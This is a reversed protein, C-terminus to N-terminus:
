LCNGILCLVISVRLQHSMEGAGVKEGGRRKKKKKLYNRVPKSIALAFEPDKEMTAVERSSPDCAHVVIGMKM